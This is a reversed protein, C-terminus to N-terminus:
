SCPRSMVLRGDASHYIGVPELISSRGTEVDPVQVTGTNYATPQNASNALGAGTVVFTGGAEQNRAVCSNAVLVEPNVLNDPLDTLDSQIFSTDPANLAVVGSVGRDSSATIDSLDTLFPRVEIGFM